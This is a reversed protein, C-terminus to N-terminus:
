ATGFVFFLFTQGSGGDRGDGTWRWAAGDTAYRSALSIADGPARVRLMATLWNGKFFFFQTALRSRPIFIFIRYVRRRETFVKRDTKEPYTAPVASAGM